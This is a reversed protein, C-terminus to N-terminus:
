NAYLESLYVKAAEHWSFHCERANASLEQWHQPQNKHTDLARSEYSHYEYGVGMLYCAQAFVDM